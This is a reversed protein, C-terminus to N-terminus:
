PAPTTAPGSTTRSPLTEVENGMPAQGPAGSGPVSGAAPPMLAPLALFPNAEQAQRARREAQKRADEREREDAASLSRGYFSVAAVADGLWRAPSTAKPALRPAAQACDHAKTFAETAQQRYDKGTPAIGAPASQKAATLIKESEKSILDRLDAAVLGCLQSEGIANYAAGELLRILAETEGMKAVKTLPDNDALDKNDLIARNAKVQETAAANFSRQAQRALETAKGVRTDIDDALKKFAELQATLGPADTKGGKGKMLADIASRLKGAEETSTTRATTLQDAASKLADATGKAERATHEALQIDTNKHGIQPELNAAEQRLAAAKDHLDRAEAVAKQYQEVDKKTKLPLKDSAAVQTDAKRDLEAAQAEKAAKDQVLRDREAVLTDYQKMAEVAHGATNKAAEAIFDHVAVESGQGVMMPKLKTDKYTELVVAAGHMGAVEDLQRAVADAAMTLKRVDKQLQDLELRAELLRNEAAQTGVVSKLLPSLKGAPALAKALYDDAKKLDEMQTRRDLIKKFGDDTKAETLIKNTEATVQQKTKLADQDVPLRRKMFEPTARYEGASGSTRAALDSNKVAEKSAQVNESEGCAALLSFGLAVGAALIARNRTSAQVM